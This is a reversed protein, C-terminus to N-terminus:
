WDEITRKLLSDVADWVEACYPLRVVHNAFSLRYTKEYYDENAAITRHWSLFDKVKQLEEDDQHSEYDPSTIIKVCDTEIMGGCEANIWGLYDADLSKQLEDSLLHYPVSRTIGFYKCDDKTYDIFCRRYLEFYKEYGTIRGWDVYELTVEDYDDAEFENRIYDILTLSCGEENTYAYVTQKIEPLWVEHIGVMTNGGTNLYEYNLVVFNDKSNRNLVAEVWEGIALEDFSKDFPYQETFGKLDNVSTEENIEYRAIESALEYYSDRFNEMANLLNQKNTTM